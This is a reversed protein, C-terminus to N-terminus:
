HRRFPKSDDIDDNNRRSNSSASGLRFSIGFNFGINSFPQSYAPQQDGASDAIAKRSYNVVSPGSVQSLPVGQSGNATTVNLATLTEQKIYVSMSLLSVEGFISVRDNLKYQVGAAAAFGLSFSNKISFTYDDIEFGTTGAGTTIVQDEAIKTSVPVAIGMRAYINWPNGGTQLVLSPTVMFPSKAQQIVSVDGIVGSGLNANQDDYTYKKTALGLGADLQLGVHDTFMYGLGIAGQLGASLSASKINYNQPYSAGSAPNTLSGNYPTGTGDLTQGAEPFAYGLGLRLYFGQAFGSFAISLIFVTIILKKMTM